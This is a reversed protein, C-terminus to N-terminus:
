CPCALYSEACLTTWLIVSIEGVVPGEKEEKLNHLSFEKMYEFSYKNFSIICYFLILRQRYLSLAFPSANCYDESGYWDEVKLTVLLVDNAPHFSYVTNLCAKCIKLIPHPTEEQQLTGPFKVHANKGQNDESVGPHSLDLIIQEKPVKPDYIHLKAGEDMLYKSIYISSSERPFLILCSFFRINHELYHLDELTM